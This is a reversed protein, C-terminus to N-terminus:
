ESTRRFPRQPRFAAYAGGAVAGFLVHSAFAVGGRADAFWPFLATLAHYNLAYLAAGFLAGATAARGADLGRVLGALVRAYLLSLPMHVSMAAAFVVATFPSLPPLVSQGLAIAAIRRVPDTDAGGVFLSSLATEAIIMTVGAVVGATGAAAWDIAGSGDETATAADAGHHTRAAPPTRTHHM